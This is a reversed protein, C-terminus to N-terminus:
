SIPKYGDEFAQAPSFSKYGDEYAVYYGGAQPKHKEMYDGDVYFPAYGKEVPTLMAGSDTDTNPDDSGSPQVKAIKLAHVVKFCKWRPLETQPVDVAM